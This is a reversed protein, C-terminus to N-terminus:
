RDSRMVVNVTEGSRIVVNMHKKQGNSFMATLEHKGPLLEMVLPTVGIKKGDLLVEAHPAANVQLRGTASQSSSKSSSKSSSSSSSSGHKRHHEARARELEREAEKVARKAERMAEARVRESDRVARQAEREVQQRAREIQQRAREFQKAADHHQDPDFDFDFDFDFDLDPPEPPAPIDIVPAPLRPPLPARARGPGASRAGAGLRELTVRQDATLLKKIRLMAFIRAKRATGELKAVADIQNGVRAEDADAKELERRLDISAVEIAARTRALSKHLDDQIGRVKAAQDASLDLHRTVADLDGLDDARASTTTLMAGLVLAAVIIAYRM